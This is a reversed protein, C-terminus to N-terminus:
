RHKDELYDTRVKKYDYDSPLNIKSSLRKVFSSIELKNTQIVINETKSIGKNSKSTLKTKM